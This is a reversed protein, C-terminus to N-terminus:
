SSTGLSFSPLLISLLAVCVYAYYCKLINHGQFLSFSRARQGPAGTNPLSCHLSVEEITKPYVIDKPYKLFTDFTEVDNQLFPFCLM